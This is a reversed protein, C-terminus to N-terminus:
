SWFFPFRRRRAPADPDVLRRPLAVPEGDAQEYVALKKRLELLGDDHPQKGNGGRGNVRPASDVGASKVPTLSLDRCVNRGTQSAVPREDSAFGGLLANDAIVSITRPIGGAYEHIAAVAQGTFM